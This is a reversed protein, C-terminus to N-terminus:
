DLIDLHGNSQWQGQPVFRQEFNAQTIGLRPKFSPPRYQRLGDASVLTKGDSAVRYGEGVWAKGAEDAQGRTGSGLGFNGKGKYADRIIGSTIAWDGCGSTNHVLVPTNGALVYYTSLGQVTLNYATALWEAGAVIGGVHVRAGTKTILLDGSDLSGAPQWRGDDANWFPHDETTEIVHDNVQLGKLTDEHFWLQTVTRPEQQGTEPDAALVQDGVKIESIPKTTGDAMLVHTDASFSCAARVGDILVEGVTGLAKVKAFPVLGVVTWVCGGTSGGVCDKADNYGVVDLWFENWQRNQEETMAKCAAQFNYCFVNWRANHLEVSNLNSVHTGLVVEAWIELTVEGRPPLTAGGRKREGGRDDDKKKTDCNKAPWCPNDEKKDNNCSECGPVYDCEIKSCDDPILGSPDSLTVPNNNAYSYGNMQQPDALDMLPDVSIFRGITPDYERAGLNTLGTSADKIGGVFGKDGIWGAPQPGRPEGFPMSRRRTMTTGAFSLESTGHHDTVLRTLGTVTRVGVTAGNHTYYRTGDAQTAGAALRLETGGPLYLTTADPEKRLLRSGNADYVYTTDQGAKNVTSLKGEPDWTLTQAIGGITRTETNGAQDYSYTDTSVGAPGDHGISAVAHPRPSGAGPYTYTSTTTGAAGYDTQKTRNGITDYTWKRWYPDAGARQPTQCGATAETWAEELRRLHDYRFCEVQDVAGSTKGAIITINGADDYSYDSTARDDWTNATTANESDVQVTTLRRTAEDLSNTIRIRQNATAGLIRQNIARDWHYSTAAVYTASGSGMQTPLGADSYNYTITEAPLGGLSPLVTTAVTGDPKYTASTTYTGALPGENAPITITSGSPQYVDNYGTVTMTYAATGVHRTASTLTGKAITDFVWSARLAGTANDDRLETQRGMSDYAQYLTEGRADTTTVLQGANDYSFGTQGTDPDTKSVLRGRLDYTNTWTNGAPDTVSTLQGVRDYGYLTEDYSGTPAGGHYQRLATTRDHADFITTTATAGAPPDVNVRDGDYSTTTRWKEANASWLADVTPRQLGDYTYRSQTAIDADAFTVLTSTPGSANNYFTSLKVKSGRSDYRADIIARKGDPATNQAQRLRLLGDYIEFSSIQNGNPGLAKAQVHSAASNSVTYAYESNPTQNTPRGPMWVKTLRGLPDYQATTTKGNPDLATTVQGRIDINTTAVHGAPNTTQMATVPGGTTPTYATSSTRGLADAASLLRGHVDYTNTSTDVFTPNTGDHSAVERTQTPHGYDPWGTDYAKNDYAIRKDALLDNPYTPSVNCPKAVTESRSLADTIWMTGINRVYSYRTCTDDATVATDGLDNVSVPQGYTTDYTYEQQTQRWSNSNAIWTYTATAGTEVFEATWLTPQAHVPDENRTATTSGWPSNVTKRLPQGGPTAYQIQERLFGVRWDSDQWTVGDSGTINVQRTGPGADTRDNDMGRFYLYKTQTQTGGAAGTTVTVTPWGRFDSWTRKPLSASWVDTDNHHWLVTSDTGATSYAYSHVVDPSGGVLDREIVQTVRYKNWWAWGAPSGEPQHFQPFCRKSNHDPDAQSNITCDSGEYTILIEGGTGNKISTIRFKYARPVAASENYDTRNAYQVGDFHVAPLAVSGGAKGTHVIDALWLSPSSGDAHGPFTHTLAWEDVDQYATGVRVQTTVKSLRRHTWYNPGVSNTCPSAWCQLDWPTDPWNAAVPRSPSGSWCTAALCRDATTFVVRMPPTTTDAENGRTGYEIRELFGGRDYDAVLTTNGAMAAKNWELGYWYSMSNGDPDVVLDLKWRWPKWCRSAQFSSSNYCPEWTHNAFMGHRVVSNTVRDGTNWGPLRYRGFYYQTGDSTVLRWYEGGDTYDHGGTVLEIRSGDDDILKWKGTADDQVIESSKGNFVLTANNERWCPDPTANTYHPPFGELDDACTRYQREVYGPNYDWGEGVWSPQGHEANTRSDVGSSSYAFEVTPEIGGPAPPVKLPYSWSFGGSSTGAQWSYAQSLSTKKFTGTESDTGAVLAVVGASATSVQLDGSIVGTAPNNSRGGLSRAAPCSPDATSKLACAPLHVLRLRSAWDSGFAGAFQAYSVEVRVGAQTRQGDARAVQLLLAAGVAGAKARDLVEVQVKAPADSADAEDALWRPSLVDGAPLTPSVRVPLGGVSTAAQSDGVPVVGKAAKPWVVRSPSWKAKDSQSPSGKKAKVTSVDVSRDRQPKTAADPAAQAPVFPVLTM